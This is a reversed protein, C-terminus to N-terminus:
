AAVEALDPLGQEGLALAVARDAHLATTDFVPLGAIRDGVREPDFLLVLETCAM